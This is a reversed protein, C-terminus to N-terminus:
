SLRVEGHKMGLKKHKSYNEKVFKAFPNQELGVGPSTRARPFTNLTFSCKCIGCIKRSIDLSKTHRRVKQGCGGCEYIFKAEIEYDHCRNIIPLSRFRQMCRSAWKRWMPGHGEKVLGDVIWVAAHCMEHILTDRIREPTSCVKPSLEIWSTRDGKNRCLGATKLLRPNWKITFLEPLKISSFISLL